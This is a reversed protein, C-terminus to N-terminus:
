TKYSELAARWARELGAEFGIQPRWGSVGSLKGSDLVNASVDFRRAELRESRVELSARSALPELCRLVDMNSRGVGTGINYASGSDGKELVAIIGKAVDSVHVYDRITGETGFVRVMEGRIISHMATAIFGQGAFPRQGEGFANGPRAIAVPLDAVHHFMGAYKEITLKTIGYPSVPMTPHDEGIPLSHANGYVAGGTSVLVVKHAGAAVAEQLLQVSPPLNALIDYIPDAFSTQPVTAYALDVIEDVGRLLTKLVARDGYDGCVYTVERPLAVDPRVRRGLIVVDRGSDTLYQALRTGIFGAGGILCTRM